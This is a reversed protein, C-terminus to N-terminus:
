PKRRSNLVLTKINGLPGDAIKRITQPHWNCRIALSLRNMNKMIFPIPILNWFTHVLDLILFIKRKVRRSNGPSCMYDEIRFYRFFNRKFKRSAPYVATGYYSHEAIGAASEVAEHQQAAKQFPIEFRKGCGQTLPELVVPKHNEPDRHGKKRKRPKRRLRIEGKPLLGMQPCEAAM